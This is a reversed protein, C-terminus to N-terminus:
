HEQIISKLWKLANPEQTFLKVPVAPRNIGLFFNAIMKSVRSKIIIAIARNNLEKSEKDPHSYHHRAAASIAQVGRLDVLMYIYDKGSAIEKGTELHERADDLMIVAGEKVKIKLLHDDEMWARTTHTEIVKKEM